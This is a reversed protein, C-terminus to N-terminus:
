AGDPASCEACRRGGVVARRSARLTAGCDVCVEAAARPVNSSVIVGRAPAEFPPPLAKDPEAPRAEDAAARQAEQTQDENVVGSELLQDRINKAM